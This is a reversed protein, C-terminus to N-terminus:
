VMIKAEQLDIKVTNPPNIYAPKIVKREPVKMGFREPRNHYAQM